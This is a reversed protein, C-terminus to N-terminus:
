SMPKYPIKDNHTGLQEDQCPIKGNGPQKGHNTPTFNSGGTHGKEEIPGGGGTKGATVLRHRLANYLARNPRAPSVEVYMDFCTHTRPTTAPPRKMKRVRWATTSYSIVNLKQCPIFPSPNFGFIRSSVGATGPMDRDSDM